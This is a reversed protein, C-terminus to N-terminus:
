PATGPTNEVFEEAAEATLAAKRAALEAGLSALDLGAERCKPFLESEEEGAHHDVYEGLVIVKADYLAEDPLMARIRAVLEKASTHEVEAEDLLLADLRASRAAPYFIEEEITTHTTLLTCIQEALAQRDDSAAEQEALARYKKFLARVEAHDATLLTIADAHAM